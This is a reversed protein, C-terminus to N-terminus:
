EAPRAIHNRAYPSAPQAEPDALRKGQRLRGLRVPQEFPALCDALHQQRYM